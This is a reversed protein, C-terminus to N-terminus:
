VRALLQEVSATHFERVNKATLAIGGLARYGEVWIGPDPMESLAVVMRWFDYDKLMRGSTRRHQSVVADEIDMGFCAADQVIVAIDWTPEGLRPEEWDVIALLKDDSWLTNGPWYDAHVIHDETKSVSPWLNKAAEWLANGLPHQAIAESPEDRTFLREFGTYLSPLLKRVKPTLPTGHVKSIAGVMQESWDFLDHPVLKPRGDIFSTVITRNGMITTAKKDLILSPAAVSNKSLLDLVVAEIAGPHPDDDKHWPGYQRVVVKNTTGAKGVSSTFELVDMRCSIGGILRRTSVVEASADIARAIRAFQETTPKAALERIEPM